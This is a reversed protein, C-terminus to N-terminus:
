KNAFFNVIENNLMNIDINNTIEVERRSIPIVFNIKNNETKKDHYMAKIVTNTNIKPLNKVPVLKDMLIFANNRYIDDIYNKKVGYNFMIKMGLVVAQGHTINKYDLAKEIGHGITHGFNLIRRKGSEKEDAKVVSSKLECCIKIIRTIIEEDYSLIKDTNELLHSALNIDKSLGCNKEIFGYKIIEGFGSSLQNKNLTKLTTIDTCVLKPQYFAGVLNKGYNNNFGTKGGVSSDVMALLTTPVQIYDIGRLYTAAAFGALDGVVGGGLAIIADKRELGIECAKNLIKEYSRINKYIEGDNLVIFSTNEHELFNGYLKKVTTNTVVLFKKANTYKAIYEYINNLVNNGIIIPYETSKREIKLKIEENRIKM